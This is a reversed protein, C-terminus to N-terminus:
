NAEAALIKKLSDMDPIMFIYGNMQNIVQLFHAEIYIAYDGMMSLNIAPVSLIAGAMDSSYAPPTINIKYSLLKALASVYSGVLINAVECIASIKLEDNIQEADMDGTVLKIISSEAEKSLVFLIAASIDGSVSFYIGTVEEDASGLMEPIDGLNLIRVEPIKMEIKKGVIESLAILANGTGINALERLLDINVCNLKIDDPM